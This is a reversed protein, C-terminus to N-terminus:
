RRVREWLDNYTKVWFSETTMYCIPCRKYGEKNVFRRYEGCYPCWLQGRKPEKEEDPPIPERLSVVGLLINYQELLPLAKNYYEAAEEYTKFKKTQAQEKSRIIVGWNMEDAM